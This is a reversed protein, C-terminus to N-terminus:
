TLMLLNLTANLSLVMGFLITGYKILRPMWVQIWRTLRSLIGAFRDRYLAFIAIFGFLPASFVANYLILAIVSPWPSLGAAVIREIAVFYPLATTIENFMVVAGLLYTHILRLSRPKKVEGSASAATDARLWLGFLLIVMGLALQMVVSVSPSLSSVFDGIVTGLGGLILLGGIFNVSLIGAIYSLLRPIPKPTTLLYFQVIFLSPNLSDLAAIGVLLAMLELSM